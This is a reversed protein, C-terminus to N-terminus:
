NLLCVQFLQFGIRKNDRFRDAKQLVSVLVRQTASDGRDVPPVTFHYQPNTWFQAVVGIV